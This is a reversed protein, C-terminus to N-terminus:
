EPKLASLKITEGREVEEAVRVESSADNMQRYLPHTYDMKLGQSALSQKQDELHLRVDRHIDRAADAAKHAGYWGKLSNPLHGLNELVECAICLGVAMGRQRLREREIDQRSPGGDSCPM